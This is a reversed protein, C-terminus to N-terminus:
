SDAGERLGPIPAGSPMGAAVYDDYHPQWPEATASHPGDAVAGSVHKDLEVLCVTWGAANRAAADRVGLVNVFTLTCGGIDTPELQFHLEDTGWTYVLLRPPDYAMVRGSTPEVYPDESFEIAGGVRPELSVRSPFWHALEGPDTIASWIREPPHPYTRQFRVAPRGDVDVFTGRDM